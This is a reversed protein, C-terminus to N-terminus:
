GILRAKLAPDPLACLDARGFVAYRNRAMRAYLWCQVPMPPVTALRGLWGPWGSLYRAVAAVGSMEALAQGRDIFLWSEPDDPDLGFHRLM